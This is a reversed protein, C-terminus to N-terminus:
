IEEEEYKCIFASEGHFLYDLVPLGGLSQKLVAIQMVDELLETEPDEPLYKEAFYKKRFASLVIRSREEMGGSNKIEEIGPRLREVDDVTNITVKGSPRRSQVVGVIHVNQRRAMEHINNMANEYLEAKNGSGYNFNKVMTLLDITVVLYDVGMERKTKEIITEIDSIFLSDREVFRFYPLHVLKEREKDVRARIEENIGIGEEEQAPYLSQLPIRLRQAILRDMNSILPMELSFYISPIQKNIQKNILYLAYTSKGVGSQAFLTTIFQPTFGTTLHKNLYSCGTDYFFEGSERRDLEVSYKDFMDKLTYIQLSDDSILQISEDLKERFEQIKEVDIDGKQSVYGLMDELLYNQVNSKAWQKKLSSYLGKFDGEHVEISFLNEILDYNIDVEKQAETYLSRKTVRVDAQLLNVISNHIAKATKSIFYKDEVEHILHPDKVCLALVNQEQLVFANEKSM